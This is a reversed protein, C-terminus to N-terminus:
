KCVILFFFRKNFIFTIKPTLGSLHYQCTGGAVPESTPNVKSILLLHMWDVPENMEKLMRTPTNIFRDSLSWRNGICLLYNYICINAWINLYIFIYVECTRTLSTDTELQNNNMSLALLPYLTNGFQHTFQVTITNCQSADSTHFGDCNGVKYLYIKIYGLRSM